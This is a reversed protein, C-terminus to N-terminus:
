GPTPGHPLSFLHLCMQRCGLLLPPGGQWANIHSIYPLKPGLFARGVCPIPDGSVPYYRTPAASDHRNAQPGHFCELFRRNM